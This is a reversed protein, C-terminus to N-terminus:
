SRERDNTAAMPLVPMGASKVRALMILLSSALVVLIVAGSLYGPLELVERAQLYLLVTILGRPALWTLVESFPLRFARLLVYRSGYAVALVLSAALWSEFSAVDALDTWYGLLIFFFGRVAFTLEIVLVKFQSLTAEYTDDIWNGFFKFRTLMGPNNLALGFLLVMILPSLHLLKGMAYVFLLGALLPIFRIHGDIRMLVLVLGVACLAALVLSLVGGGILGILSGGLTGDSNLLSFFVLVGLIDSISTEYIVFEREPRPLFSSSPIAIASSIVSFPVAVLAAQYPALGLVWTGLLSFLVMCILLGGLAILTATVTSRIAKSHLRIDLAGELVILILGLTGLFPVFHQIGKLELGLHDAIPRAVLGTAILLIVSPVKLVAGLRELGFALLLIASIILITTDTM